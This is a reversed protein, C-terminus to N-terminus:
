PCVLANYSVVFITFDSDETNGDGDLDGRPDILNNYYEVFITFDADNVVGDGNFDGPCPTHRVAFDLANATIWTGDTTQVWGNTSQNSAPWYGIDARKRFNHVDALMRGDSWQMITRGRLLVNGSMRFSNVGGDFKRVFTAIPNGPELITGLTAEPGGVFGPLSASPAIDYGQSVWRGSPTLVSGAPSFDAFGATVEAGGADVYDALTNGLTTTDSFKRNSWCLLGNFPTLTALSPTSASADIIQVGSFRGCAGLKVPVDADFDDAAVCAIYPKCVYVLANGMLLAGDTATSWFDDRANSSPPYFNLDARNPLKTSAAALIDGTSWSAITFGGTNLASGTVRYSSSGGSFSAVGSLIPHGAYVEAGLTAAGVQFSPTQLMIQYNGTLWRGALTINPFSNLYDFPSCVVGGGSDVYDALVNGLAIPDQFGIDSYVLVADYTQLQALTPTGTNTDFIDVASFLNTSRLQAQVDNNWAATAPAGAILVKPRMVYLLANAMLKVGDTSPDWCGSEADASPPYFGLDARNIKPGVAVLPTGDSWSAVLTAGATLATGSPRFSLSGGNFSGV